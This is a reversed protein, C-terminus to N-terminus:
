ATVAEEDENLLQFHIALGKGPGRKVQGANLVTHDFPREGILEGWLVGWLTDLGALIKIVLSNSIM